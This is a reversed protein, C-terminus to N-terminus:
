RSAQKPLPRLGVLATGVAGEQRAIDRVYAEFTAAGARAIELNTQVETQYRLQLWREYIVGQVLLVPLLTVLLLVVLLSRMTRPIHWGRMLGAAVVKYM